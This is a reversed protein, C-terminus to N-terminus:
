RRRFWAKPAVSSPKAVKQQATPSRGLEVDRQQLQPTPSRRATDHVHATAGIPALTTRTPSAGGAAGPDRNRGFHHRTQKDQNEPAHCVRWLCFGVTLLLFVLLFVFVVVGIPTHVLWHLVERVFSKDTLLSNSAAGAPLAYVDAVLQFAGSPTDASGSSGSAQLVRLARKPSQLQRSTAPAAALAVADSTPYDSYVVVWFQGSFSANPLSVVQASSGDGDSTASANALSIHAFDYISRPLVESVYVSPVVGAASSSSSSNGSASVRLRLGANARLSEPVRFMKLEGRALSFSASCVSCLQTVDRIASWLQPLAFAKPSNCRMGSWGPACQCSPVADGSVSTGTVLVCKGKSNCNVADGTPGCAPLPFMAETSRFLRVELRYRLTSGSYQRNHVAVKFCD